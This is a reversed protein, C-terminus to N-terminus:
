YTSNKYFFKFSNEKIISYPIYFDIEPNIKYEEKIKKIINELELYYKKFNELNKDQREFLINWEPSNWNEYIKWYKWEQVIWDTKFLFEENKENNAYEIWEKWISTIIKNLEIFDWTLNKKELESIMYDCQDTHNDYSLKIKKKKKDEWICINTLNALKEYNLQENSKNSSLIKQESKNIKDIAEQLKINNLIEKSKEEDIFFGIILLNGDDNIKEYPIYFYDDINIWPNENEINELIDSLKIYNEKIKDVLEEEKDSIENCLNPVVWEELWCADVKVEFKSYNILSKTIEILIDKLWFDDKEQEKLEKMTNLCIKEFDEHYFGIDPVPDIIDKWFCPNIIDSYKKIINLSEPLEIDELQLKNSKTNNLESNNLMDRKNYIIEPIYFYEDINIKWIESEINELVELLEFYSTEMLNLIEDQEDYMTECIYSKDWYLWWIRERCDSQEILSENYDIWLQTIKILIDKLLFKDDEQENIKSLVKSCINWFELGSISWFKDSNLIDKWFCPNIINSYEKIVEKNIEKYTPILLNEFWRSDNEYDKENFWVDYKGSKLNKILAEKHYVSKNLRINITSMRPTLAGYPYIWFLNYLSYKNYSIKDIINDTTFNDNKSDEWYLYYSYNMLKDIENESLFPFHFLFQYLSPKNNWIDWLINGTKAWNRTVYEWKMMKDIIDNKDHIQTSYRESLNERFDKPLLQLYSNISSDVFWQIVISILQNVISWAENYINIFKYNLKIIFMVMDWDKQYIYYQLVVMSARSYWQLHPPLLELIKNDPLYYDLSVIHDLVQLNAKIESEHNKIFEFITAKKWNVSLYWDNNTFNGYYDSNGIYYYNNLVRKLTDTNWAWTGCYENWWSNIVICEETYHKWSIDKNEDNQQYTRQEYLYYWDLIDMVSAKDSNFLDRLQVLADEEDSLKTQHWTRNFISPDIEPIKSWQIKGYILDIIIISILVITTIIWIKKKSPTKDLYKPNIIWKKNFKRCKIIWRIKLISFYIITFLFDTFKILIRFFILNVALAWLLSFWLHIRSKTNYLLRWLLIYLIWCLTIVWWVYLINSFSLDETWILSFNWLGARVLSIWVFRYIGSLIKTLLTPHYYIDVDPTRYSLIWILIFLIWAPGLLFFWSDMIIDLISYEYYYWDSHIEIIWYIWFWILSIWILWFIISIIKTFCSTHSAGNFLNKVWIITFIIWAIFFAWSRGSIIIDWISYDFYYPLDSLTQSIDFIWLWILSIWLLLFVVGLIKTLWSSHKKNEQTQNETTQHLDQQVGEINNQQIIQQTTEEIHQQNQVFNNQQLQDNELM